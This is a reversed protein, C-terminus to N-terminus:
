LSDDESFMRPKGHKEKSGTHSQYLSSLRRLVLIADGRAEQVPRSPVPPYPLTSLSCCFTCCSTASHSPCSLLQAIQTHVSSSSSTVVSMVYYVKGHHIYRISPTQSTVGLSSFLGASCIFLKYKDCRLLLTINDLSM